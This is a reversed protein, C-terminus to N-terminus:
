ERAVKTLWNRLNFVNTPMAGIDALLEKRRTAMQKNFPKTRITILRPVLKIFDKLADMYYPTLTKEKQLYHRFTDCAALAQEYMGARYLCSITYARVQVNCIPSAISSQAFWRLAEDDHGACMALFGEGFAVVDSRVDDQLAPAFRRMYDRAWADEGSMGALRVVYIFDPFLLNGEQMYGLAINEQMLLWAERFYREDGELNIQASCYGTLHLHTMYADMYDLRERHEQFLSVLKQFAEHSRHEELEYVALLVQVVPASALGDNDRLFRVIDPAMHLRFPADNSHREHQMLTYLRLLRISMIQLVADLQDQLIIRNTTPRVLTEYISEEEALRWLLEYSFDDLVPRAGIEKRTKAVFAKFQAHLRRSRLISAKSWTMVMRMQMAVEDDTHLLAIYNMALAHLDSLRHRFAHYDYAEGPFAKTHIEEDGPGGDFPHFDGLVRCLDTLAQNKNYFPSAVYDVFRGMEKTTFTRLLQILKPDRM